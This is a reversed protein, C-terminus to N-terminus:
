INWTEDQLQKQRNWQLSTYLRSFTTPDVGVPSAEVVDSQNVIENGVLICRINCTQCYKWYLVIYVFHLKVNVIDSHRLLPQYIKYMSSSLDNYEIVCDINNSAKGELFNSIAKM